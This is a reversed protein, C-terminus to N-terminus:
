QVNTLLARGALSEAVTTGLAAAVTAPNTLDYRKCTLKLPSADVPPQVRPHFPLEKWNELNPSALYNGYLIGLTTANIQRMQGWTERMGDLGIVPTGMVVDIPTRSLWWLASYGSMYGQILYAAGGNHVEVICDHISGLGCDNLYVTGAPPPTGLWAAVNGAPGANFEQTGNEEIIANFRRKLRDRVQFTTQGCNGFSRSMLQSFSKFEKAGAETEAKMRLAAEGGNLWVLGDISLSRVASSAASQWDSFEHQIGDSIWATLRRSVLVPYISGLVMAPSTERLQACIAELDITTCIVSAVTLM